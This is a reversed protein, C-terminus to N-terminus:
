SRTLAKNVSNKLPGAKENIRSWNTAETKGMKLTLSSKVVRKIDSGVRSIQDKTNVRVPPRKKNDHCKKTAMSVDCLRQTSHVCM